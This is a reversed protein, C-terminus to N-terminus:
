AKLLNRIIGLKKNRFYYVPRKKSDELPELFANNRVNVKRCLFYCFIDFFYIDPFM